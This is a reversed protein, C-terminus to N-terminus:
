RAKKRLAILALVFLAMVGFGADCGSNGGRGLRLDDSIDPRNGPKDPDDIVTPDDPDSPGGPQGTANKGVSIEWWPSVVELGNASPGTASPDPAARGYTYVYRARITIKNNIFDWSERNIPAGESEVNYFDSADSGQILSECPWPPGSTYTDIYWNELLSNYEYCLAVGHARNYYWAGDNVKVDWEIFYMDNIDITEERNHQKEVM